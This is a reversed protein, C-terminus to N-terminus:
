GGLPLEGQDVADAEPKRKNVVYARAATLLQALRHQREKLDLAPKITGFSEPEASLAYLTRQPDRDLDPTLDVPTLFLRDTAQWLVSRFPCPAQSM